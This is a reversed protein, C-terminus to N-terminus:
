AQLPKLLTAKRSLKYQGNKNIELVKVTLPDGIKLLERLRVSSVPIHDFESIHCLGQKGPLIEVFIGFDVISAVKGAYTAGVEVEAILSQIMQKAKEISEASNGSISVVGQSGKDDIDIKVGTEETIRRIQKGGPGIVISIKDLKILFTEIRPAYPSLQERYKPCAALMKNLIHIRGEKAQQLCVKLLAFSIGEIKLDMQIATLGEADGTVKFDMDGLADEIGLIDSLIIYQNQDVILGMAIGAVPKKIPVGADMCALIGSCVSAMSSSGNSSLTMAELRIIHPFIEKSPLAYSIAKEALKGHGIERRGPGTMRGVEGVSFPPFSYQLYFRQSREGELDEFRQAMNDGGLTCTALVQTEGRDFLSSGHTRPLFSQEVKIPRIETSNRGDARIGEELIMKRMKQSSIEKLVFNIESILYKSTHEPSAFADHVAKTVAALAKEREEKEKLRLAPVLLPTAIEEIEEYLKESIHRISERNKTKGVQTQWNKIGECIIQISEHGLEIAQLIQEETLFDCGGEIMLIADETGAILLDLLSERQQEISPNIVFQGKILGVKVAGVPKIFPIDSICLAASAACIALPDPSHEGDYSLVYSVIQVENYYGKEFMARISRDTFRSVLVEKDTPKGERKIFGSPTRGTSSLREQHLVKLPFFDTNPDAHTSACATSFVITEGCQVLVAGNAQRAIHGTKFTILKGNIQVSMVEPQM